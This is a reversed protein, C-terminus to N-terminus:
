TESSIDEKPEPESSDKVEAEYDGFPNASVTGDDVEKEEVVPKKKSMCIAIALYIGGWILFMVSARNASPDVDVLALRSMGSIIGLVGCIILFWKALKRKHLTIIFPIICSGVFFLLLTVTSIIQLVVM